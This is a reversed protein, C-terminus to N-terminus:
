RKIATSALLSFICTVDTMKLKRNTVNFAFLPTGTTACHFHIRSPVMLNCTQDRAESPPNLIQCQQSSHHLDFIHSPDLMPTTTAYSPLQLESEIWLRPIDMHRLHLGLFVFSWSFFFFPLFLIEWQPETLVCSTVLIQSSAPVLELRAWLILSGAHSYSTTYVLLQLGSEIGLRLVEM